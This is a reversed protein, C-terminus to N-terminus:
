NNSLSYDGVNDYLYFCLPIYIKNMQAMEGCLKPILLFMTSHLYTFSIQVRCFIRPILLFMTSHLDKLERLCQSHYKTYTSVYHFTFQRDILLVRCKYGYLYFCLPIYIRITLDGKDEDRIPILLFMTSHLNSSQAEPTKEPKHILLFMTSHLNSKSSM